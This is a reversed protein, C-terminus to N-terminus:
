LAMGVTLGAYGRSLAPAVSFRAARAQKLGLGLVVAGAVAAAGGIGLFVASLTQADRGAREKEADYPM